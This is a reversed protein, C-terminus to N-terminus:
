LRLWIDHVCILVLEEGDVTIDQASYEGFLVRDGRKLTLVRLGVALVEGRNPKPKWADATQVLKEDDDELRRLLVRDELPQLRAIKAVHGAREMMELTQELTASAMM